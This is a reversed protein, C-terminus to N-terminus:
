RCRRVKADARDRWSGFQAGPALAVAEEGSGLESDVYDARRHQGGAGIQDTVDCVGLRTGPNLAM